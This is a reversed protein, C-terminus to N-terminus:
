NPVHRLTGAPSLLNLLSLVRSRGAEVLDLPAKNTFPVRGTLQHVPFPHFDCQLQRHGTGPHMAM